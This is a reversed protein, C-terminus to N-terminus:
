GLKHFEASSTHMIENVLARRRNCDQALDSWHLEGCGVEQLGMTMNNEWRNGPRGLPGKDEPNGVLVM